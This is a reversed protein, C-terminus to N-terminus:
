KKPPGKKQSRAATPPGRKGQDFRMKSPFVLIKCFNDFDQNGTNNPSEQSIQLFVAFAIAWFARKRTSGHPGKKEKASCWKRGAFVRPARPFSLLFVLNVLSKDNRVRKGSPVRLWVGLNDSVETMESGKDRPGRRGSADSLPNKKPCGEVASEGPRYPRTPERGGERALVSDHLSNIGETPSPPTTPM